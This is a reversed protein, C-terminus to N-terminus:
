NNKAFKNVMSVLISSSLIVGIFGEFMAVFRTLNQPHIDGYGITTFTVGSFYFCQWFETAPINNSVLSGFFYYFASFATVVLAAYSLLLYPNNFGHFLRTIAKTIVNGSSIKQLEYSALIELNRSKSLLNKERLFGITEIREDVENKINDFSYDLDFNTFATPNYDVKNIGKITADLEILDGSSTFSDLKSQYKSIRNIKNCFMHFSSILAVEFCLNAIYCSSLSSERIKCNYYDIKKINCATISVSGITCGFFKLSETVICNDMYVSEISGSDDIISLQGIIICNIFEIEKSNKLRINECELIKNRIKIAKGYFRCENVDFELGSLDKSLYQSEIAAECLKSLSEFGGDKTYQNLLINMKNKCSVTNILPLSEGRILQMYTSLVEM